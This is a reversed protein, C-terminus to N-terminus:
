ELRKVEGLFSGLSSLFQPFCNQFVGGDSCRGEPSGAEKGRGLLVASHPLASSPIEVVM